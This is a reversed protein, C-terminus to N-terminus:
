QIQVGCIPCFKAPTRGMFKKCNPCTSARIWSPICVLLVISCATLFVTLFTKGVNFAFFLIPLIIVTVCLVITIVIAYPFFKARQKSYEESFDKM